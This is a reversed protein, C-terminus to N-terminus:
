LCEGLTPFVDAFDTLRCPADFVDCADYYAEWVIAALTDTGTTGQYAEFAERAADLAPQLRQEEFIDRALEEIKEQRM